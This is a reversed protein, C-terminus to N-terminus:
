ANASEQLASLKQVDTLRVEEYYLRGTVQNSASTGTSDVSLYIPDEVVLLELDKPYPQYEVNNWVFIGSTTLKVHRTRFFLSRRDGMGLLATPLRRCIEVDYEADVEVPSPWYIEIARVRLGLNVSAIGTSISATAFADASGQTVSMSLFKATM